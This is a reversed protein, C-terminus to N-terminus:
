AFTGAILGLHVVPRPVWAPNRHILTSAWQMRNGAGFVHERVGSVGADIVHIRGGDPEDEFTPYQGGGGISTVFLKDLDPGGFAPCTPRRVPLDIRDILRGETTLRALSSGHVCALWIHGEADTCAGDPGGPLGLEAFDILPPKSGSVVPGIDVEMFWCARLLTDGLANRGRHQDDLQAVGVDTVQLELELRTPHSLHQRHLTSRHGARADIRGLLRGRTWGQRRQTAGLAGHRAPPAQGQTTGSPWHLTGIWDESALLLVDPDETLAISGPRGDLGRSDVQGDPWDWRHVQRGDIDVWALRNVRHDWLPSEGLVCPPGLAGTIRPQESGSRAHQAM